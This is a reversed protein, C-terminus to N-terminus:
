PGGVFGALTTRMNTVDAYTEIHDQDDCVNKEALFEDALSDGISEDSQSEFGNKRNTAQKEETILSALVEVRSLIEAYGKM